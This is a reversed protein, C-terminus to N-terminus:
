VDIFVLDTTYITRVILVSLLRFFFSSVKSPYVKLGLYQGVLYPNCNSGVAQIRSVALFSALPLTLGAITM